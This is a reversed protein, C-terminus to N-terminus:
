TAPDVTFNGTFWIRDEVPSAEELLVTYYYLRAFDTSDSAFAQKTERPITFTATEVALAPSSDTLLVTGGPRSLIKLTVVDPTIDGKGTFVFDLVDDSNRTTAIDAWSPYDGEIIKREKVTGQGVTGTITESV